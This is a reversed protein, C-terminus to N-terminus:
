GDVIFKGETYRFTENLIEAAVSPWQQSFSSWVLFDYVTRM